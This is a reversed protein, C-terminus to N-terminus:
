QREQRKTSARELALLVQENVDGFISIGAAGNALALAMGQQLEENSKFDPLYLGAYLPFKGSLFHMGEAVADGIWRVDEKYFGHYIMPYVANLNWNTWDQRVIRRAVEPTPFVAATIPKKKEKAVEALHNVISNVANYRFLRWSLSAEPYELDEIDQGRWAKFKTRCVSCYCYDYEPLEKTQEIKYDDWLNVPLIVDCFRVYDLHIGDIYDKSLISRVDEALYQKVEERSPCLWRYYNVYPPKDACSEGKRNIAYWEPHKQLLEKEGRNMTWMWRHAELKNAKAIRYHKESDAEFFIGRIGAEYFRRYQQQLDAEKDSQNPRTWVWHKLQKKKAVPATLDAFATAPIGAALGALAGAKLFTRRTKM